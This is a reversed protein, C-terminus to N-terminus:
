NGELHKLAREVFSKEAFKNEFENLDHFFSSDEGLLDKISKQGASWIKEFEPMRNIALESLILIKSRGDHEDPFIKLYGKNLLGRIMKTMAPKSIKLATALETMTVNENRSLFLFVLHWSPEIDLNNLHYLEKINETLADSLRKLRATFGLHELDKLFDNDM